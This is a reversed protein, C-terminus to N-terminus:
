GSCMRACPGIQGGACVCCATCDHTLNCQNCAPSGAQAARPASVVAAGILAAAFLLKKLNKMDTGKQLLNHPL